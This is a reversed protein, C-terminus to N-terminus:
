APRAEGGINVAVLQADLLAGSPANAIAASKPILARKPAAAAIARHLEHVNGDRDVREIVEGGIVPLGDVYQTYHRYTGLLSQREYDLRLDQANVAAASLLLFLFPLLRRM